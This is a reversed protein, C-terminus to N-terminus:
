GKSNQYNESLVQLNLIKEFCKIKNLKEQRLIRIVEYLTQYYTKLYNSPPLHVTKLM